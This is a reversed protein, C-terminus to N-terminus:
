NNGLEKVVRAPVGAALCNPPISRTVVSGAAIVSNDGITVGKLVTVRMGLWVHRGLVVPADREMAPLLHRTEAPWLPHFDSDTIVCNPGVMTFDGIVVSTSRVTIATGSLEVGEGLEIRATPAFTRLRVPAYLTSATCRRSSSILSCAKGLRVRSGPWRGLICSGACTVGPGLEVGFLLAKLRLLWTGWLVCWRRQVQIAAYACLDRGSLNRERAKRLADRWGM